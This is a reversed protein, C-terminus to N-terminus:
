PEGRIKNWCIGCFYRFAKSDNVRSCALEMAEIVTSKPIQQLFNRISPRSRDLLTWGPFFIEYVGIVEDIDADERARREQLLREYERVQEERERLLDAKQSIDIPAVSDLPRAGKGRNCDFCSTLLNHDANTGGETIPVIHDVELVVAPPKRGCYQCTFEDRKFVEFRLTKSISQRKESM